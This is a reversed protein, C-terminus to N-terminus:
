GVAESPEFYLPTGLAWDPIGKLKGEYVRVFPVVNAPRPANFEQGYPPRLIDIGFGLLDKRHRYVSMRSYYVRVDEGASWLRYVKELREPLGEVALEGMRVNLPMEVGELAKLLERPGTEPTWGWALWLNRRLLEPAKLELELRVAGQAYEWLLRQQEVDEIAKKSLQHGKKDIELGKPYGKLQWRRSREGYYVTHGHSTAKGLRGVSGVREFHRLVDLANENTEYDLMATCDVRQLLLLGKSLASAESEVLPYDLSELVKSCMAIALGRADCSGFLNHGQFFKAPNGSIVLGPMLGTYRQKDGEHPPRPHISSRWVYVKSDHSGEVPHKVDRILSIEGGEKLVCLTDCPLPRVPADVDLYVGVTLWDIV